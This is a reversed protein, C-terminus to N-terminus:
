VKLADAQLEQLRKQLASALYSDGKAMAQRMSWQLREKKFAYLAEQWYAKEFLGYREKLYGLAEFKGAVLGKFVEQMSFDQTSLGFKSNLAIYRFEAFELMTRLIRGEISYYSHKFEKERITAVKKKVEERALPASIYHNLKDLYFQRLFPSFGQATQLIRQYNKDLEYMSWPKLNGKDLRWREQLLTKAYFSWGHRKTIEPREQAQMCEGLDKKFRQGKTFKREKNLLLVSVHDYGKKFCAELAKLTAKVGAMDQDFCFVLEYANDIFDELHHAALEVGMTGVVNFRGLQEMAMVDFYGECLIVQKNAKISEKARHLNYLLHGKTFIPTTKTNVYKVVMFKSSIIELHRGSFGRIHGNADAIPITIRRSFFPRDNHLLGLLQLTQVNALAKLDREHTPACFGLGFKQIMELSLGREEQLYKLAEPTKLLEKSFLEQAAQMLQLHKANQDETKSRVIQLPFNFFRAVELAADKFELKHFLEAFRIVDGGVNCGFCSFFRKGPNVRFSPGKDEHFPCIGGYSYGMKRLEVHKDIYRVIDVSDKMEQLNVFAM